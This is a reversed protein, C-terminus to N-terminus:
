NYNVNGKAKRWKIKDSLIFHINDLSLLLRYLTHGWVQLKQGGSESNQIKGIMNQVKYLYCVISTLHQPM